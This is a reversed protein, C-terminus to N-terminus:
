FTHYVDGLGDHLLINLTEFTNKQIPELSPIKM